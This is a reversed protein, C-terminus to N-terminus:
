DLTPPRRQIHVLFGAREGEHTAEHQPEPLPLKHQPETLRLKTDLNPLLLKRQCEAEFVIWINVPCNLSTSHITEPVNTLPAQCNNLM